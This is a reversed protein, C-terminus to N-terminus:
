ARRRALHRRGRRPARAEGAVLTDIADLIAPLEGDAAADDVHERARAALREADLEEAVLDLLHARERRESLAGEVRDVVGDHVRGRFAAAVEGIHGQRVLRSRGLTGSSRTGGTDAAVRCRRPARRRAPPRPPPPAEDRDLEGADGLEVRERAALRERELRLSGRESGATEGLRLVLELESTRPPSRTTTAKTWRPSACRWCASSRFTSASSSSRRRSEARRERHGSRRRGRVDRSRRARGRGPAAARWM